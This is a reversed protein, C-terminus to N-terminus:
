MALLRAVVKVQGQENARLVVSEGSQPVMGKQLMVVSLCGSGM